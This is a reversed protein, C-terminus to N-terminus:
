ATKRPLRPLIEEGFLRVQAVLDALGEVEIGAWAQLTTFPDAFSLLAHTLGLPAYSRSLWEIWDAPTGAVV